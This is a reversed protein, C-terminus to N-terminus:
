WSYKLGLTTINARPYASQPTVSDTGRMNYREYEADVQWRSAFTCVAKLGYSSSQLASLRYDSSYFPNATNPPGAVPVISTQDLNYYYFNARTQDYYRLRPILIFNAGLRQLWSIEFTNSDVGFTDHYFRYSADIAARLRPFSHNISAFAIWKTRQQPRNEGYTNPLFVGPAVESSKQVLKYQDNLYGTARGWTVNFSVSTQPDLLQTIGVIVDNSHKKAWPTQYFVKVDDDTGAAGALLTTNKQNFDFLSNFSWGNSVYDSERSNAFGADLSFGTFQRSLDGSWAKRHDHLDAMVVQDSGAPAPQGNPTAGAIADVVGQVKLHTDTGLDQEILASQTKIRMRSATEQYDSYKYTASDEARAHRPSALLLWVTLGGALCIAKSRRSGSLSIIDITFDLM